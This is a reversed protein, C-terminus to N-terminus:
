FTDVLLFRPAILRLGDNDYKEIDVNTSLSQIGKWAISGHITFNRNNDTIADSSNHRDLYWAGYVHLNNRDLILNVNEGIFLVPRSINRRVHVNIETTNYRNFIYIVIPSNEDNSGNVLYVDQSPNGSSTIFLSEKLERVRVQWADSGGIRRYRLGSIRDEYEEDKNIDHDTYVQTNRFQNYYGLGYFLGQWVQAGASFLERYYFPYTTTQQGAISGIQSLTIARLSGNQIASSVSASLPPPNVPIGDKVPVGYAYLNFDTVPVQWMRANVTISAGDTSRTFVFPFDPDGANQVEFADKDPTLFDNVHDFDRDSSSKVLSGGGELSTTDGRLFPWFDDGRGPLVPTSALTYSVSNNANLYGLQVNILQEVTSSDPDSFYGREYYTLLAQKVIIRLNAEEVIRQTRDDLDWGTNYDATTFSLYSQFFFLAALIFLLVFFSVSGKKGKRLYRFQAKRWRM